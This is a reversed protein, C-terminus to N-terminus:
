LREQAHADPNTAPDIHGYIVNYKGVYLESWELTNPPKQIFTSILSM